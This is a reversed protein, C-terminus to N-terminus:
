TSDKAAPTSPSCTDSASPSVSVFSGTLHGQNPRNIAPRASGLLNTNPHAITHPRTFWVM